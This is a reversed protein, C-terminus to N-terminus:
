QSWTLELHKTVSGSVNTATVILDYSEGNELNVQAKNKGWAGNSDDKSFKIAPYPEGTVIAEVRYYCIDSDQIIVPGEYIVLKLTPLNKSIDEATTEVTEIITATSPTSVTNQDDDIETAATMQTTEPIPAAATEPTETTTVVIEQKEPNPIYSTYIVVVILFVIVISITIIVVKNKM